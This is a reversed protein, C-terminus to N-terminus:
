HNEDRTRGQESFRIARLASLSDSPIKKDAFVFFVPPPFATSGSPLNLERVVSAVAVEKNAYLSVDATDLDTVIHMQDNRSASGVIYDSIEAVSLEGQGLKYCLEEGNAGATKLWIEEDTDETQLFIETSWEKGAFYTGTNQVIEVTHCLVPVGPLLLYYQHCTLGRYKEQKQVDYSLKIGQWVNQRNDVLHVFSATREEKILSFSNLEAIINGIGGTWPNWWSKPGREPFSTALWEQGHSSLSFLSPSFEPAAKIRLPGNDAIYVQQGKEEATELLVKGPGVPFVVSRLHTEHTAFRGDIRVLECSKEPAAFSYGSETKEEDEAFRQAQGSDPMSELSATLEGDLYQQKYEKVQVEFKDSDIFPNHESVVLELHDTLSLDAPLAEKRAFARFEKWDTFSGCTIYFPGFTRKGHPELIGLSTELSMHWGQLDIRYEEPWCMGWPIDNRSFLWNESILEGDWYDMDSGYSAPTQVYRGQYPLIPRFIPHAFGQSLWLETGLRDASLNTLELEHVVTGDGFLLTKGILAIQPFSGSRYAACFGIAGKEVICEVKEPRKKSFESSYPKGIKPYTLYTPEGGTGSVVTIENDEKNFYLAHLGHHVQWTQETEGSLMAGPGTFAAGIKKSFSVSGGDALKAEVQVDAEYFGHEYPDAELPLSVREKGQLRLTHRQQNIRLFSCSPLEFSFEAEEEFSNEVDLYFQATRGPYTLGPVQLSLSAPFKPLIGVQFLAAKGNILIHTCVRPHTRWVSQEETIGGVFFSASLTTEGTVALEQQYDFRINENPAGKLSIQLPKGSKNVIRYHIRYERGFVLRPGEVEASLLYDETEILRMGRGLREFEVRLSKEGKAWSYTFYDFGNEKRGDPEVVIERTSDQYWDLEEFYPAIAETRLVTPIMNMLHTTDDRDEWFFGFKKYLPVAKTNGAWTYLDLRPWGLQITQELVRALLMRGVKKGQYDPRVNLLPIYLAGTDERYEALSCYGVVKDGDMALYVALSDSSAEEQLIQEATTISNGGGWSDRSANWMDAVAAALESRYPVISISEM